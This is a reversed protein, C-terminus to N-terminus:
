DALYDITVTPEEGADRFADADEFDLTIPASIIYDGESINEGPFNLVDPVNAGYRYDNSYEQNNEGRDVDCTSFNYAEDPTDLWGWIQMGQYYDVAWLDYEAEFDGASNEVFDLDDEDQTLFGLEDDDTYNFLEFCYAQFAAESDVATGRDDVVPEQVVTEFYDLIDDYTTFRGTVVKCVLAQYCAYDFRGVTGGGYPYANGTEGEKFIPGIEPHPFDYNLGPEDISAYAGLFVPGIARSDVVEELQGTAANLVQRTAAERPIVVTGHIDVQPLHENFTCGGALLLALPAFATM